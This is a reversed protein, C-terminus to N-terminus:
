EVRKLLYWVSFAILAIAAASFIGTEILQLSWYHSAPHYTEIRSLGNNAICESIYTRSLDGSPPCYERFQQESIKNGAADYWFSAILWDGVKQENATVDDIRKLPTVLYPRVWIMFPIRVGLYLISSIFIAPVTRKLVVSVALMLGIAFLTHGIPLTGHLDYSDQGLRGLARDIPANWWHFAYSLVAAFLVGCLSLLGIKIRTWHQRSVGQTWALRYTGSEFETVMPLVLLLAAILPLFNFWPLATNIIQYVAGFNPMDGQCLGDISVQGGSISVPGNCEVDVVAGAFKVADGHSFLLLGSLVVLMMGLSLYEIRQLRWTVWTM